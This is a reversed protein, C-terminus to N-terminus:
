LLTGGYCFPHRYADMAHEPAVEYTETEGDLVLTIFARRDEAGATVLLQVCLGATIRGALAIVDAPPAVSTAAELRRVPETTEVAEIEAAAERAFRENEWRQIPAEM